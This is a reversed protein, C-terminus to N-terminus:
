HVAVNPRRGQMVEAILELQAPLAIQHLDYCEVVTQRARRRLDTYEDPRALADITREAIERPSFFDVLLGSEGERLVEEVPATRSGIVLCGSSMAELMSWSLVFPYTLYVHARSVQLIKLFVPYPVKGLFHVRSLDLESGMEDLLRQRYTEGDPLRAGYSVEDGGVILVRAQPRAKLIAPLSRMFRDFGRYPELNRAVYTLVEDGARM